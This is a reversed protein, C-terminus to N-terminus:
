YNKTFVKSENFRSQLFTYYIKYYETTLSDTKKNAEEEIKKQEEQAKLKGEIEDTQAILTIPILFFTTVLFFKQM